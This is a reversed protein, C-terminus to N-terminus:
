KDKTKIWDTSYISINSSTSDTRLIPSKHNDITATEGKWKILNKKRPISVNNAIPSL